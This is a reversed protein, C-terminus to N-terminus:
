LMAVLVVYGRGWGGSCEWIEIARPEINNGVRNDDVREETDDPEPLALMLPLTDYRLAALELLAVVPRERGPRFAPRTAAASARAASSPRSDGSTTSM